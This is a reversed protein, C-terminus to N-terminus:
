RGRSEQAYRRAIQLQTKRDPGQVLDESVFKLAVDWGEKDAIRLVEMRDESLTKGQQIFGETKTWDETKCQM